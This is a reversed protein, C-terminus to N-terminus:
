DLTITVIIKERVLKGDKRVTISMGTEGVPLPTLTFGAEVTQEKMKAGEERWGILKLPFIISRITKGGAVTLDPQEQVEKLGAITLGEWGFRGHRKGNRLYYTESWDFILDEDTKNLFTFRFRNYYNYGEAKLSQLGVEYVDNSVIKIPPDSRYIQEKACGTLVLAFIAM